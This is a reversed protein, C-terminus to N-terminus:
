VQVIIIDNVDMMSRLRKVVIDHVRTSRDNPRVMSKQIKRALRIDQSMKVTTARDLDGRNRARLPSGERCVNRAIANDVM